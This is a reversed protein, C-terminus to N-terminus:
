FFMRLDMQDTNSDAPLLTSSSRACLWHSTGSDGLQSTRTMAIIHRQLVTM